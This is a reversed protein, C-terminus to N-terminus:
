GSNRQMLPFFAFAIQAILGILGQSSRYAALHDEIPRGFTFISVGMEALMLLAFAVVVMLLRQSVATPVRFEHTTWGSVLWSVALIVPTELLVSAIEGMRPVLVLVRITGLMFGVAFVAGFYALGANIAANM